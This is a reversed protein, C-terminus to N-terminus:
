ADTIEQPLSRYCAHALGAHGSNFFPAEFWSIVEAARGIRKNELMNSLFYKLVYRRIGEADEASLSSLVTAVRRWNELNDLAKCLDLVSATARVEEDIAALIMDEDEMDIVKGLTTLATRPIGSCVQSIKNVASDPFKGVGEATLVINLLKRIEPGNLPRVDYRICRNQVTPKLSQPETTCLIMILHAPPEELLKLIAEQYLATSGQIEDLIFVKYPKGDLPRYRARDILDRASDIGRASALNFEEVNIEGCDVKSAVIRALTTKGCGTPGAFLLARPKDPGALSDRLATKIAENGLFENFDRPRHDTHLPM